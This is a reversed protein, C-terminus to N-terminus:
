ENFLEEPFHSIGPIQNLEHSIYLKYQFMCALNEEIKNGFDLEAM